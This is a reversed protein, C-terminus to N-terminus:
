CPTPGLARPPSSGPTEGGLLVDFAESGAGQVRVRAARRGLDFTEPDFRSVLAQLAEPPTDIM